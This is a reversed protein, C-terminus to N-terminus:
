NKQKELPRTLLNRSLSVKEDVIKAIEEKAKAIASDVGEIQIEVMEESADDERKPVKVNAGSLDQINKLVVGKKGIIYPLVSLPTSVNEV